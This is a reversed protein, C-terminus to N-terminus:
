KTAELVDPYKQNMENRYMLLGVVPIDRMLHLDSELLSTNLQLIHFNLSM